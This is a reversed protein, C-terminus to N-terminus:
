SADRTSAVEELREVLVAAIEALSPISEFWDAAIDLDLDRGLGMFLEMTMLSDLGVADLQSGVDLALRQDESLGLVGALMECVFQQMTSRREPPTLSLLEARLLHSRQRGESGLQLEDLIPTPAKALRRSLDDDSLVVIQSAPLDDIIARELVEVVRQPVVDRGVSISVSQDAEGVNSLLLRDVSLRSEWARNRVLDDGSSDRVSVLACFGVPGATLFPLTDDPGGGVESAVRIWGGLRLRREKITALVGDLKDSDPEIVEDAGLQRLWTAIAVRTEFESGGVENESGGVIFVGRNALETGSKVDPRVYAQRADSLDVCVRGVHRNQAMYRLARASESVGFVTAEIPQVRGGIADEATQELLASVLTPETRIMEGVDIASVSRNAGLRLAGL